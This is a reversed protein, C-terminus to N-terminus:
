GSGSTTTAGAASTTTQGAATTTAGEGGAATSSPSEGGAVTNGTADTVVTAAPDTGSVPVDSLNDLTPISEPRPIEGFRAEPVFALTFAMRDDTFRTDAIDGTVIEAPTATDDASNWRALVVRGPQGEGCERGNEWVEGGPLVIKGDSVELDIEDFFDGLNSREGAAVSSYPHIHIIGDAHTHVGVADNHQDNFGPQFTDCLYVGFAAHWHEGIKPSTEAADVRRDRGVFILGIGVVIIVGLAIPFTLSRNARGATSRRGTTSRAAKAVKKTSNSPAM